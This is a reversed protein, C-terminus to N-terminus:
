APQAIIGLTSIMRGKDDDIKPKNAQDIRYRRTTKSWHENGSMQYQLGEVYHRLDRKLQLGPLPSDIRALLKLHTHECERIMIWLVGKAAEVTIGVQDALVQVANCLIAGESTEKEAILREKEYSLIDNVLSIHQGCNKEIDSM